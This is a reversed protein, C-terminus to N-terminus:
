ASAPYSLAEQGLELLEGGATGVGLEDQGVDARALLGEVAGVV